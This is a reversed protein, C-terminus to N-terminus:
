KEEVAAIDQLLETDSLYGTCSYEYSERLEKLLRAKETIKLAADIRKAKEIYEEQIYHATTDWDGRKGCNQFIQDEFLEKAIHLIGESDGM